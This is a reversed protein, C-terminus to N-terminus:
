ISFFKGTLQKWESDDMKDIKGWWYGSHNDTEINVKDGIKM